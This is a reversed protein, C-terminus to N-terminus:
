AAKEQKKKAELCLRSGTHVKLNARWRGCVPCPLIPLRGDSGRQRAPEPVFYRSGIKGFGWTM